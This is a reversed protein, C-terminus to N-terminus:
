VTEYNDGVRGLCQDCLVTLIIDQDVQDTLCWSPEQNRKWVIDVREVNNVFTRSTTKQYSHSYRAMVPDASPM